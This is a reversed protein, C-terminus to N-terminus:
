LLRGPRHPRHPRPPGFVEKLVMAQRLVTLKEEPPASRLAHLFQFELLVPRAALTADGTAAWSREKAKVPPQAPAYKEKTEAQGRKKRVPQVREEKRAVQMPVYKEEIEPQRAPTPASVPPESTSLPKSLPTPAPKPPQAQAPASGMRKERVPRIEIPAAEERTTQQRIEALIEELTKPRAGGGLRRAPQARDGSSPHSMDAPKEQEGFLGRLLAIVLAILEEM